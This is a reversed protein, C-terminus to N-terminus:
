LFKLLLTFIIMFIGGIYPVLVVGPVTLGLAKALLCDRYSGALCRKSVSCRIKTCHNNM